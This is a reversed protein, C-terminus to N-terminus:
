SGGRGNLGIRVDLSRARALQDADVAEVDPAQVARGAGDPLDGRDVGVAGVRPGVEDGGVVVADVGLVGAAQGLPDGGVKLM